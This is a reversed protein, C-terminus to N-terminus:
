KLLFLLYIGEGNEIGHIVYLQEFLKPSVKFTGDAFLVDSQNLVKLQEESAFIMLRGGYVTKRKDYILFKKHSYIEQYIDPVIFKQNQPLPPLSKRRLKHLGSELSYFGLLFDQYQIFFVLIM